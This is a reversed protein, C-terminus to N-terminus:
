LIQKKIFRKLEIYLDGRLGKQLFVKDITEGSRVAEIIARIGFILNSTNDM